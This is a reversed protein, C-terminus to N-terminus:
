TTALDMPLKPALASKVYLTSRWPTKIELDELHPSELVAALGAASARCHLSTSLRRLGRLRTAIATLVDRDELHAAALELSELQALPAANLMRVLGDASFRPKEAWLELSRLQAAFPARALADPFGESLGCEGLRLHELAPWRRRTLARDDLVPTQTLDLTELGRALTDLELLRRQSEAGIDSRIVALHRLGTLSALADALGEALEPYGKLSVSELATLGRLAEVLAPAVATGDADHTYHRYSDSRESCRSVELERLGRLQKVLGAFSADARCVWLRLRALPSAGTRFSMIVSAPIEVLDCGSLELTTLSELAAIDAWLEPTVTVGVLSLHRLTRWGPVRLVAHTTATPPRRKDRSPSAYESLILRLTEFQAPPHAHTARLFDDFTNSRTVVLQRAARYLPQHATSEDAILNSVSIGYARDESAALLGQEAAALADRHAPSGWTADPWRIFINNVLLDLPQSVGHEVLKTIADQGSLAM